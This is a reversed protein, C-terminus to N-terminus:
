IRILSLYWAIMADGWFAAVALGIALFPGFAFHDGQKLRGTLLMDAGYCGGIVLALFMAAANARWGLFWGAAAMLKIDGGGFAGPIALALLFMPLSIECAGILRDIVTHQPFLWLAAFGLLVIMAPFRNYIIQTDLDIMAVVTLIALFAYVLAGQLSILGTRGYGYFLACCVFAAGGLSEIGFYRFSIKAKCNRCRGRQILYSFLPILEGAHLTHGCTTCHSRGHIISEGAPLRYIVVNLFSFICAGVFFRFIWLIAEMLIIISNESM